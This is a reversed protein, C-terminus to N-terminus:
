LSTAMLLNGPPGMGYQSTRSGHAFGDNIVYDVVAMPVEGAHREMRAETFAARQWPPAEAGLKRHDMQVFGSHPAGRMPEPLDYSAAGPVFEPIQAGPGWPAARHQPLGNHYGDTQRPIDRGYLSENTAKGAEFMLQRELDEAQLHSGPHRECGSNAYGANAYGANETCHSRVNWGADQAAHRTHAGFHHRQGDYGCLETKTQLLDPARHRPLPGPLTPPVALNLQDNYGCSETKTQLPDPARQRPLPGPISPPVALNLGNPQPMAVPAAREALGPAAALAEALAEATRMASPQGNSHRTALQQGDSRMIDMRRQLNESCAIIGYLSEDHPLEPSRLPDPRLQQQHSAFVGPPSARPSPVWAGSGGCDDGDVIGDVMRDLEEDAGQAFPDHCHREPSPWPAPPLSQSPSPALGPPSEAAERRPPTSPRQPQAAVESHHRLAITAQPTGDGPEECSRQMRLFPTHVAAPPARSCTCASCGLHKADCLMEAAGPAEADLRRLALAADVLNYELRLWLPPQEESSAQVAALMLGVAAETGLRNHALHLERLHGGCDEVFGALGGDSEIRNRFLKFVQVAIGLNSLTDILVRVGRATLLNKSFDVEKAELLADSQDLLEGSRHSFWQCWAVLGDDSLEQESMSVFLAGGPRLTLREEWHRQQAVEAALDIAGPATPAM